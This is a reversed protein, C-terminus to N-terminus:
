ADEQKNAQKGVKVIGDDQNISKVGRKHRIQRAPELKVQNVKIQLISRKKKGSDDAKPGVLSDGQKIESEEAEFPTLEAHQKGSPFGPM